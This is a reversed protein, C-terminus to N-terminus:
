IHDFFMKYTTFEIPRGTDKYVGIFTCSWIIAILAYFVYQDREENHHFYNLLMTLLVAQFVEFYQFPRIMMHSLNCVLFYGCSYFLSGFYWLNFYPIKEEYYAKLQPGYWIIIAGSLLYSIMIPGLSLAETYEGSLVQAYYDVYADGYGTLSLINELYYMMGQFVPTRGVFFCIALAVLCLYKKDPLDIKNFPVIALVCVPLLLLASQHILSLIFVGVVYQIFKKEVIFRSLYFFGCMVMMQRVGNMLDIYYRGGFIVIPLWILLYKYEKLGKCLFFIQFFAVIGTGIYFPLGNDHVGKVLADWLHETSNERVEGWIFIDIYGQSDVGVRWRIASILTFFMMYAWIYGDFGTSEESESKLYSEKALIFM